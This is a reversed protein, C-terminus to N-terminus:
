LPPTTSRSRGARGHIEVLLRVHGIINGFIQHRSQLRHGPRAASGLSQLLHAPLVDHLLVAALPVVAAAIATM